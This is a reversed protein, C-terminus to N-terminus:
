PPCVASMKSVLFSVNKSMTPLRPILYHNARHNRSWPTGTRTEKAATILTTVCPKLWSFRQTVVWIVAAFSVIETWARSSTMAHKQCLCMRRGTTCKPPSLCQTDVFYNVRPSTLYSLSCILPIKLILLRKNKFMKVKYSYVLTHCPIPM